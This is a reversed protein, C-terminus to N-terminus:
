CHFVIFIPASNGFNDHFYFRVSKQSVTYMWIFTMCGQHNVNMQKRPRTSLLRLLLWGHFQRFLHISTILSQLMHVQVEDFCNPGICALSVSFREASATVARSFSAVASRKRIISIFFIILYKQQLIIVIKTTKFWRRVKLRQHERWPITYYPKVDWEVCYLDNRLLPLPPSCHYADRMWYHLALSM